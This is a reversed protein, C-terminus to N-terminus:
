HAGRRYIPNGLLVTIGGFVDDRGYSNNNVLVSPQTQQARSASVFLLVNSAIRKNLRGDVGFTSQKLFVSSSDTRVYRADVTLDLTPSLERDFTGSFQNAITATQQYGAQFVRSYGFGMRAHQIRYEIDASAAYNFSNDHPVAVGSASSYLPGASVRFNIHNSLQRGYTAQAAVFNAHGRPEQGRIYTNTLEVGLTDRLNIARELQLDLGAVENRLVQRPTGPSAKGEAQELWGGTVTGLVKDHENLDHSFGFSAALNSTTSSSDAVNAATPGQAVGGSGIPIIVPLYQGISTVRGAAFNWFLTTHESTRRDLQTSFIQSLNDVQSFNPYFVKDIRYNLNFDTKVNRFRLGVPVGFGAFVGGRTGGGPSNFLNDGYGGKLDVGVNIPGLERDGYQLTDASENTSAVTATTITDRTTPVPGSYGPDNPDNFIPDPVQGWAPAVTMLISILVTVFGLSTHHWARKM